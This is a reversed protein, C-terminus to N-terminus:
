FVVSLALSSRGASWDFGKTTANSAVLNTIQSIEAFISFILGGCINKKIGIL